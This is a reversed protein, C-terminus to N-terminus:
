DGDKKDETMEKLAQTAIFFNDATVEDLDKAQESEKKKENLKELYDKTEEQSLMEGTEADMFERTESSLSTVEIIKM